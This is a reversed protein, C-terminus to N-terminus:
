PQVEQSKADSLSPAWKDIAAKHDQWRDFTREGCSMVNVMGIVDRAIERAQDRERLARVALFGVERALSNANEQVIRIEQQLQDPESM